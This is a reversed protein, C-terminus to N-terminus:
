LLALIGDTVKELPLAKEAGGNLLAERPMGYVVSTAEDQALTRAGAERMALLGKAGDAGMGTLIVGVANNGASEAVSQLLVDVSPRHRSVPPGQKIAVIYRAGNRRLLMHFNGPALLALGDRVEDGDEAERVEIECLRNLREAFSKTFFEPMHQVIVIGPASGPMRQLVERIAETGGTSAGIAIVKNTTTKLLQSPRVPASETNERPRVTVQSARVVVDILRGMLEQLGHTLDAKPKPFVDIAGLELAKMSIERRGELLSSFVVIPMPWHKMLVTIFELGDMRPMELDLTLVDPKLQLILDRAEYPDSAAGVVEIRPDKSFERSLVSRIVASDDVILVRAPATM